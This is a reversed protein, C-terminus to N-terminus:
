KSGGEPWNMWYSNSRLTPKFLEANGTVLVDAVMPFTEIDSPYEGRDMDNHRWEDVTLIRPLDKPIRERIEEETAYYLHKVESRIGRLYEWIMIKPPADLEMKKSEYYEEDKVLRIKHGRLLMTHVNENLHEQYTEEFAPGEDSDSTFQIYNNNNIGPPVDLCNGYVYVCNRIGKHGKGKLGIFGVIEIILAWREDDRYASFRSAIPYVYGNSFVPFMYERACEDLQNLIEEKTFSV